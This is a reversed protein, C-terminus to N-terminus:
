NKNTRNGPQIYYESLLDREYIVKKTGKDLLFFTETKNQLDSVFRIREQMMTIYEAEIELLERNKQPLNIPIWVNHTKRWGALYMYDWEDSEHQFGSRKIKIKVDLVSDAAGYFELKVFYAEVDLLYENDNHKIFIQVDHPLLIRNNDEDYESLLIPKLLM